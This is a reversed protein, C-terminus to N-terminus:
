RYALSAIWNVLPGVIPSRSTAARTEGVVFRIYQENLLVEVSVDGAEVSGRSNPRPRQRRPRRGTSRTYCICRSVLPTPILTGTSTLANQVFACACICPCQSIRRVGIWMRKGSSCYHS